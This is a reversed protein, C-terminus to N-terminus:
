ATIPSMNFIALQARFSTSGTRYTNPGDTRNLMTEVIERIKIITDNRHNTKMIRSKKSFYVSLTARVSLEFVSDFDDIRTSVFTTYPVAMSSTNLEIMGTTRDSTLSVPSNCHYSKLPYYKKPQDLRQLIM